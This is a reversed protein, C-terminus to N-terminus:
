ATKAANAAMRDLLARIDDLTPLRAAEAEVAAIANDIHVMLDKHSQVQAEAGDIVGQLAAKANKLVDVM